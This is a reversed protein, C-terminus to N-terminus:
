RITLVATTDTCISCGETGGSLDSVRRLVPTNSSGVGLCGAGITNAQIGAVAGPASNGQGEGVTLGVGITQAGPSQLEEPAVENLKEHFPKCHGRPEKGKQLMEDFYGEVHYSHFM